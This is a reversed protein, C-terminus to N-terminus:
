GTACPLPTGAAMPFSAAPAPEPIAEFLASAESATGRRLALARVRLVRVDRGLPFTLVDGIRVRFDPKGTAQRNVRIQGSMIWHVCAARTKRLHACWLWKDLRQTAPTPATEAM